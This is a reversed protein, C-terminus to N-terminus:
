CCASPSVSAPTTRSRSSPDVRYPMVVAAVRIEWLDPFAAARPDDASVGRRRAAPGPEERRDDARGDQRPPLAMGPHRRRSRRAARVARREEVDRRYVDILIRQMEASPEIPATVDRELHSAPM